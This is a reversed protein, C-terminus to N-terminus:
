YLAVSASASGTVISALLRGGPIEDSSYYLKLASNSGKKLSIIDKVKCLMGGAQNASNAYRFERLTKNEGNTVTIIRNNGAHGCHHYKIVLEDTPAGAPLRITQAEGMQSGFRQLILKKNLYVEFGEGGPKTTFSLISTSILLLCIAKSLFSKMAKTKHHFIQYKM